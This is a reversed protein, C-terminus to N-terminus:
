MDDDLSGDCGVIIRRCWFSLSVPVAVCFQPIIKIATHAHWQRTYRERTHSQPVTFLNSVVTRAISVNQQANGRM